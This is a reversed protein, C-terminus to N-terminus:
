GTIHVSAQAPSDKRRLLQMPFAFASIGLRWGVGAVLRHMLRFVANAAALPFKQRYSDVKKPENSRM